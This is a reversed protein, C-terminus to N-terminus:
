SSDRLVLPLFVAYRVPACWYGGCLEYNASSGPGISGQGLTTNLAFNTSAAPGGGGAMVDWNIAFSDSDMATAPGVLGATVLLAVVALLVALSIWRKSRKLSRM